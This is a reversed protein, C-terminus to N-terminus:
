PNVSACAKLALDSKLQVSISKIDAISKDVKASFVAKGAPNTKFRALETAPTASCSGDTFYQSVYELNPELGAVRGHIMTGGRPLADLTVEGNAGSTSQAVFSVVLKDSAALAVAAVLFAALFAPLISFKRM